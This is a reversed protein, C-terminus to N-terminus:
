IVAPGSAHQALVVELDFTSRFMKAKRRIAWHELLLDGRGTLHLLLRDKEKEAEVREVRQLHERDLADAVRLISALQRIRVRDDEKLASWLEHDDSPEARRHYRAVLAVLPVDEDALGPLEANLILYMSHKHHRRYSIIQGIDHLLAAALLLKRDNPGLDHLKGLQDFISLALRAV